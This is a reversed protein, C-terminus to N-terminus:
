LRGRAEIPWIDVLTDGDVVHYRDYLNVTPDCHPTMFEVRAGLPPRHAPDVILKGHEDGFFAYDSPGEIGRAVRPVVSDTAFSKTGADLTVWQPVQTSVVTSQVFLSTDFPPSREIGALVQNYEVDMFVYSGPQMETFVGAPADAEHTGTGVGTVIDIPMGASELKDVLSAVAKRLQAAAHDRESRPEIHQLHGGYAQVGRLTLMGTEAIASALAVAADEDIVGTRHYGAHYDILVNLPHALRAAHLALEAVNRPDDVVVMLQRPGAKDALAVLRRLKNTSVIPSTVLVGPIGAEVMAEAEGLTACSVGLAGAEIQMQAIRVSKHSKVHPRLGIGRRTAVAAMKAINRAMATRDLLLAPTDLKNRSDAVGILYANPGLTPSHSV